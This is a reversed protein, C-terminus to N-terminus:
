LDNIDDHIALIIIQKEETLGLGGMSAPRFVVSSAALRVDFDTKASYATRYGLKLVLRTHNGIFWSSDSVREIAAICTACTDAVRPALTALEEFQGIISAKIKMAWEVQKESGNM